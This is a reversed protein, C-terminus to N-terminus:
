VPAAMHSLLATSRSPHRSGAWVAPVTRSPPPIRAPPAPPFRPFPICGNRRPLAGRPWSSVPTAPPGPSPSPHLSPPSGPSAAPPPSRLHTRACRRASKLAIPATLPPPLPLHNVPRSFRNAVSTVFYPNFRSNQIQLRLILVNAIFPVSVPTGKAM